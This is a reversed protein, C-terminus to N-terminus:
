QKRPTKKLKKYLSCTSKIWMKLKPFKNSVFKKTGWVFKNPKKIGFINQLTWMEETKNPLIFTPHTLNKTDIEETKINACLTNHDKTHTADPRFGINKVLNKTPAISLGNQSLITYTWQFDWLNPKEEETVQKYVNAFTGNWVLQLFDNDFIHKIFFNKKFEPFNKMYFDYTKWARKWTAWGWVKPIRSFYYDSTSPSVKTADNKEFLHSNSTGNIHFMRSDDKYKELMQECFYFFSKNPVCDDELIIGQDVHDFFWTIASSPALGCGLNKELFRTKVECPWDINKKFFNKIEASKQQDFFNNERPGDAAIFLKQPAIKKIQEFVQKTTDPRNFVIFLIPTKYMKKDM